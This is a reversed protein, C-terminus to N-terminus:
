ELEDLWKRDDKKNGSVGPDPPVIDIVDMDTDLLTADGAAMGSDTFEFSFDETGMATVAGGSQNEPSVEVDQISVESVPATKVMEFKLKAGQQFLHGLVIIDGDNLITPDDADLRRDNIVTGNSSNNDTILFVRRAPDYQLTCHLGSVSSSENEYYLQIDSLRPDRGITKKFKDLEIVQNLLDPRATIVTLKALVDQKARSGGGLLTKRAETVKERLTGPNVRAAAVAENLRRFMFLFIVALIGLAIWPGFTIARETWCDRGNPDTACPDNVVPQVPGGNEPQPTPLPPPAVVVIQVTVSPSTTERGFEDRIRTQITQTNTGESRIDTIDWLFNFRTATPDPTITLETTGNVVLEASMIDRPHQDPWERIEATVDVSDLSYSVVGDERKGTRTFRAGDAPSTVALVPDEITVSYTATSGEPGPLPTGTPLVTVRRDGSEGNASRYEGEYSLGRAMIDGYVRGLNSQNGSHNNGLVVRTGGTNEVLSDLPDANDDDTQLVYIPIHLGRAVANLNQADSNTNAFGPRSAFISDTLYVVATGALNPDTMEGVIELAREVGLLGRTALDNDHSLAASNVAEILENRSSTPSIILSGNDTSPLTIVAATDVGDRFHNTAFDLLTQRRTGADMTGNQQGLDVVFVVHAPGNVTDLLQFDAVAEGNEYVAVDNTDIGTIVNGTSDVARFGVRVDPFREADVSTILFSNNGQAHASPLILVVFLLVFIPWIRRRVTVM